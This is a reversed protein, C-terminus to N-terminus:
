LSEPSHRTLTGHESKNSHNLLFLIVPLIKNSIKKHAAKFKTSGIRLIIKCEILSM